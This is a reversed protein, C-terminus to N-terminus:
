DDFLTPDLKSKFVHKLVTRSWDELYAFDEKLEEISIIRGSKSRGRKRVFEEPEPSFSKNELNMVIIYCIALHKTSKETNKSYILFPESDNIAISENIEEQLERHLCRTIAKQLSNDYHDEDRIHGGLYLLLKDREPSKKSTSRINKKLVLVKNREKNTIVAIPLPQIFRSKEVKDRNGLLLEQNKIVEYDNIGPKLKLRLTEDFYGIKEILLEKLTTLISHTVDYGVQNQNNQQNSTDIEIIRRFHKGYKLKTEEIAENFTGLVKEEMISGRIATLLNAYERTISTAPPVKYLYVIDIINTWLDLLAFSVLVDYVTDDLYPNKKNDNSNLWEFWCLADFVGRDAIIVDYKDKEDTLYGILEAIASTLTWVNFFPHTKKKVPCISARESLVVTKFDNRKLFINLSTITTTKGSKPSGCFEIVIPRRQNREEKLELVERALTELTKIKNLKEKDLM